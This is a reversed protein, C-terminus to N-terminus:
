EGVEILPFARAPSITARKSFPAMSSAGGVGPQYLRTKTAIFAEPAHLGMISREPRLQITSKELNWISVGWETRLDILDPSQATDM